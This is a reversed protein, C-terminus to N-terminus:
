CKRFIREKQATGPFIEFLGSLENPLTEVAGLVLVGGTDTMSVVRELVKTQLRRDLYILVNRLVIVDFLAVVATSPALKHGLIDHRVLEVRSRLSPDVSIGQATPTFFRQRMRAPVNALQAHSYIGRRAIAISPDHLDTAVVEFESFGFIERGEELLMAMSWAEEGTACGICWTRLTWKQPRKWVFSPLVLSALDEFVQRDRFFETVPIFLSELLNTLEHEDRRVKDR